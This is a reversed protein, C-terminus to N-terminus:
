DRRYKVDSVYLLYRKTLLPLFSDTVEQWTDTPNSQQELIISKRSVGSFFFVFVKGKVTISPQKLISTELFENSSMVFRVDLIIWDCFVYLLNTDPQVTHSVLFAGLATGGEGTDILWRYM